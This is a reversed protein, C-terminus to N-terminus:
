HELVCHHILSQLRYLLSGLICLAELARMLDDITRQLKRIARDLHDEEHFVWKGDRMRAVRVCQPAVNEEEPRIIEKIEPEEGVLAFEGALAEVAPNETGSRDVLVLGMIDGLTATPEETPTTEEDCQQEM